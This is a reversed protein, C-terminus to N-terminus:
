GKRVSKIQSGALGIEADGYRRDGSHRPGQHIYADQTIYRQVPSPDNVGFGTTKRHAGLGPGSHPESAAVGAVSHAFGHGQRRSIVGIDNWIRFDIGVARLDNCLSM